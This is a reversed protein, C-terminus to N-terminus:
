TEISEFIRSLINSLSLLILIDILLKFKLPMEKLFKFFIFKVKFVFNYSKFSLIVSLTPILLM